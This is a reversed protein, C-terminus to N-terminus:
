EDILNKFFEMGDDVSSSGGISKVEDEEWPPTEEKPKSAVTSRQSKPEAKQEVVKEEVATEENLTRDLRAKLDEVSKFKKPDVLEALSYEKEWISALEKEDKSLVSPTMFKSNKYHRQKNEGIMARLEFDAGEWFDFPNFAVDTDFQPFMAGKVHDFVQNGFDYLWVKNNNEPVLADDIMWINAVFHSRPATRGSKGTSDGMNNWYMKGKTTGFLRNNMEKVPDVLGISAVSREIYWLGTPGKFGYDEYKVFSLDEGKPAPLFRFRARGNGAKDCTIKWFRDDNEGFQSKTMDAIQTKLKEASSQGRSKKLDLFTEAM